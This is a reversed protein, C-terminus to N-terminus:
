HLRVVSRVSARQRSKGARQIRCGGLVQVWYPPWLHVVFLNQDRNLIMDGDDGQVTWLFQISVCVAHTFFQRMSIFGKAFAAIDAHDDHGAGAASKARPGIHTSYELFVDVLLALSAVWVTGLDDM